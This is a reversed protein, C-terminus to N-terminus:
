YQPGDFARWGCQWIFTYDLAALLHELARVHLGDVSIVELIRQVKPQGLRGKSTGVDVETAKSKAYQIMPGSNYAYRAFNLNQIMRLNTDGVSRAWRIPLISSGFNSMELHFTNTNYFIPLAEARLQTSLRTVSPQRLCDPTCIHNKETATPEEAESPSKRCLRAEIRVRVGDKFVINSTTANTSVPSIVGCSEEHYLAFEWIILRLEVPLGLLTPSSPQM